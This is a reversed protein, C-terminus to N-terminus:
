HSLRANDVIQRYVQNAVHVTDGEGSVGYHNRSNAWDEEMKYFDIKRTQGDVMQAELHDFFVRWRQYYLDKLIGNWEKHAYDRLLIGFCNSGREKQVFCLISFYEGFIM